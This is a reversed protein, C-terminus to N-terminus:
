RNDTKNILGIVARLALLYSDSGFGSIQGACVPATMSKSRFDERSYINSMHVEAFPIKVAEVADRIAVSTHTYAAPNIVAGDYKEDAKGIESVIDGESASQYFDTEAGLEKGLANIKGNIEALTEKGYVSADRKGLKDMNPGNLVLIKM